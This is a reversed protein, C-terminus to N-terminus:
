FGSPSKLLFQFFQLFLVHRQNEAAMKPVFSGARDASLDVMGIRCRFCDREM